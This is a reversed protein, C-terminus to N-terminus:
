FGLNLLTKPIYGSFYHFCMFETTLSDQTRIGIQYQLESLTVVPWNGLKELGNNERFTPM